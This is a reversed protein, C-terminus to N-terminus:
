KSVHIQLKSSSVTGDPINRVPSSSSPVEAEEVPVEENDVHDDQDEAHTHTEDDTEHARRRHPGNFTEHARVVVVLSSLRRGGEGGHRQPGHFLLLIALGILSNRMMSACPTRSLIGCFTGAWDWASSRDGPSVVEHLAIYQLLYIPM